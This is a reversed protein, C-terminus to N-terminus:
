PQEFNLIYFTGLKDDKSTSKQKFIKKKYNEKLDKSLSSGM